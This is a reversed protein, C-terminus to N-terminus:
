RIFLKVKGNINKTMAIAFPKNSKKTVDVKGDKTPILHDGPKVNLNNTKAWIKGDLEVECQEEKPIGAGGLQVGITDSCIGIFNLIDKESNIRHVLGDERICVLDGYEITENSSKQFIEGWGTTYLM